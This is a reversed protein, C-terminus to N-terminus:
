PSTEPWYYYPIDPKRTSKLAAQKADQLISHLYLKAEIPMKSFQPAGSWTNSPDRREKEERWEKEINAIHDETEKIDIPRGPEPLRTEIFGYMVANHIDLLINWSEFMGIQHYQEESYIQREIHNM